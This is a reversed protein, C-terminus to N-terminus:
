RKNPELQVMMPQFHGKAPQGQLITDRIYVAKSECYECAYSSGHCLACRVFSRKPNDFIASCIVCNNSYIDDIISKLQKQEEVKYKNTPRIIKLPYINKCNKFSVTYIDISVSSSKSEQVGDLSLDLSCDFNNCVRLHLDKVYSM